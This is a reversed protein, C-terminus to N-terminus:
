VWHYSKEPRYNLSVTHRFAIKLPYSNFFIHTMGFKLIM